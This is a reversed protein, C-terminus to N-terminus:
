KPEVRELTTIGGVKKVAYAGPERIVHAEPYQSDKKEVWEYKAVLTKIEDGIVQYPEVYEETTLMVLCNPEITITAKKIKRAPDVGMAQLLQWGEIPGAYAM